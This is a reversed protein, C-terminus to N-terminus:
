FGSPSFVLLVVLALPEIVRIMGPLGMIFRSVPLFSYVVTTFRYSIGGETNLTEFCPETRPYEEIMLRYALSTM